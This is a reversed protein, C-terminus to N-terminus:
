CHWKREYKRKAICIYCRFVANALITSCFLPDKRLDAKMKRRDYARKSAFTMSRGVPRGHVAIEEDRSCKRNCRLFEETTIRSGPSKRRGRRRRGM